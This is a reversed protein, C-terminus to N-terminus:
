VVCSPHHVVRKSVPRGTIIANDQLEKDDQNRRRTTDVNRKFLFLDDVSRRKSRGLRTIEPTGTM